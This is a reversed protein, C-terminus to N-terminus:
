VFYCVNNLLWINFRDHFLLYFLQVQFFAGHQHDARILQATTVRRGSRGNMGASQGTLGTDCGWAYRWAWSLQGATKKNM